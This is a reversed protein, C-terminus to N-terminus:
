QEAMAHFQINVSGIGGNVEIQNKGNGEEHVASVGTGDLSINGVGKEIDLRYDNKKGIVTFNSEGIGMDFECDGTLASTLNLQGVGMDLDLNHLAGDSITIKGAGGNIEARSTVNLSGVTVDGAGLDFCLTAASLCDVTFKGAGTEVTVADFVTNEPIYLTLVAGNYRGSFKKTETISLVGNKEKVSLHKLNSEVSHSKGQKITFDAANISVELRSIPSSIEYNRIEDGVSDAGSIGVFIGLVSVIGSVISVTLFIALAIALYKIAKQFPTM